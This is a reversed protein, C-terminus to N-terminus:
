KTSFAYGNAGREIDAKVTAALSELITSVPENEFSASVKIQRLSEDLSITVDYTREIEAVVAALPRNVFVLRGRRWSLLAGPETPQVTIPGDDCIALQGPLVNVEAAQVANNSHVAVRGSSVYVETTSDWSRVNFETGLVRTRAQTTEVVFPVQDPSVKFYGEGKLWVQRIESDFEEPHKLRSGANLHISSGDSLTVEMQQGYPVSITQIPSSTYNSTYVLVAFLVAFAAAVAIRVSPLRVSRFWRRIGYSSTAPQRAPQEAPLKALLANLQSTQPTGKPVTLHSSAQWVQELKEWAKKNDSQQLWSHLRQEERASLRGDQARLFYTLLDFQQDNKM